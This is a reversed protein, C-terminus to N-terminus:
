VHGTRALQRFRRVDTGAALGWRAALDDMLFERPQDDERFTVPVAAQPLRARLQEARAQLRARQREYAPGGFHSTLDYLYGARRLSPQARFKRLDPFKGQKLEKLADSLDVELERQSAYPLSQRLLRQWPDQFPKRGKLKLRLFELALTPVSSKGSLWSDITSNSQGRASNLPKSLLRAVDRRSLGHRFMLDQLPRKVNYFIRM